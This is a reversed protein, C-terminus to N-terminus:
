PDILKNQVAYKVLETVSSINLKLFINSRHAKVTKQSIFLIQAIDKTTKDEAILKVIELERQTLLSKENSYKRMLGEKSLHPGLVEKLKPSIYFDGKEISSFADILDHAADDKLIYAVIDFQLLKRLYEPNTHKTLIIIKCEKHSKFVERAVDIGLLSPMNLDLLLYDPKEALIESLAVRGDGSEGIIALSPLSKLILKLGDRLIKHDEAIYITNKKM